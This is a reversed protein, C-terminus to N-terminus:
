VGEFLEIRQGEAVKVIAKKWPSTHTVHRGSRRRKGPVNMINVSGVNVNFAKEVAEKVQLKSARSDVEFTYQGVEAQYSTKETIIPRRLVEYLHM